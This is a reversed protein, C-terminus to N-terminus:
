PNGRGHVVGCELRLLHVDGSHVRVARRHDHASGGVAHHKGAHGDDNKGIGTASCAERFLMAMEETVEKARWQQPSSTFVQVATCGIAKGNEIAKHLGGTAPMHAGILQAPM